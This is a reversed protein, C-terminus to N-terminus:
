STRTRAAPPTARWSSCRRARDGRARAPRPARHPLRRGPRRPVPPDGAVAEQVPGPPDARHGALPQRWHRAAHAGHSRGGVRRVGVGVEDATHMWLNLIGTAAVVTTTSDLLTRLAGFVDGGADPIWLATYGLSELEAAAARVEGADGYRLEGSWIGIGTLEMPSRRLRVPCVVCGQYVNCSHPHSRATCAAPDSQNLQPHRHHAATRPLSALSRRVARVLRIRRSCVRRTTSADALCERQVYATPRAESRHFQSQASSPASCQRIM